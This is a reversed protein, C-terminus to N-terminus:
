KKRNGIRPKTSFTLGVRPEDSFEAIRSRGKLIKISHSKDIIGTRPKSSFEVITKSTNTKETGNNITTIQKGNIEVPVDSECNTVFIKLIGDVLKVDIDVNENM